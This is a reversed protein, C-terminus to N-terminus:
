SDILIRTVFAAIAAFLIVPIDNELTNRTGWGLTFYLSLFVSVSRLVLEVKEEM